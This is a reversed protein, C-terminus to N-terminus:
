VQKLAGWRETYLIAALAAHVEAYGRLAIEEDDLEALAQQVQGVEYLLLARKVRARETIALGPFRRTIETYHQLAQAHANHEKDDGGKRNCM